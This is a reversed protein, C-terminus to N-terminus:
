SSERVVVIEVVGLRRKADQHALDSDKRCEAIALRLGMGFAREIFVEPIEAKPITALDDGLGGIVINDRAVEVVHALRQSFAKTPGPDVGERKLEAIVELAALKARRAAANKM